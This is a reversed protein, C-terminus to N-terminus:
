LAVRRAGLIVAELVLGVASSVVAWGANVARLRNIEGVVQLQGILERTAADRADPPLMLGKEFDTAIADVYTELDGIAGEILGTIQRQLLDKLEQKM